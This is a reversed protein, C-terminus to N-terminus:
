ARKNVDDHLWVMRDVFWTKALITISLGSITAWGDLVALGYLLILGGVASLTTLIKAMVEHHRPVPVRRRDLFLREGRTGRFAWSDKSTSPRFARPNYWTWFLALVLPALSWWGLWIRSWIALAILPLCTFRSYVSWPSAHRAWVEDDMAMLRESLKFVDM